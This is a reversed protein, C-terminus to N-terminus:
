WAAVDKVKYPPFMSDEDKIPKDVEPPALFASLLAIRSEWQPWGGSSGAFPDPARFRNERV